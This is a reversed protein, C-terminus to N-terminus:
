KCNFDPIPVPHQNHSLRHFMVGDLQFHDITCSVPILGSLDLPFMKISSKMFAM